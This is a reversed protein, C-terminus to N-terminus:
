RWGSIIEHSTLFDHTRLFSKIKLLTYCFFARLNTSSYSLPRDTATMDADSKSNAKCFSLCVRVRRMGEFGDKRERTGDPRKFGVRRAGRRFVASKYKKTAPAAPRGTWPCSSDANRIGPTDKIPEYIFAVSNTGIYNYAHPLRSNSDSSFFYYYSLSVIFHPVLSIMIHELCRYGIHM